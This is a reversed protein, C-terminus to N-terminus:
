SRAPRHESNGGVNLPGNQWSIHLGLGDVFGGAPNGATDDLNVAEFPESSSM